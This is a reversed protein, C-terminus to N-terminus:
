SLESVYDTILGLGAELHEPLAGYGIRLYSSMLFHDGPVVLVSKEERLRTALEVSGIRLKFRVYAIAGADPDIMSFVGSSGDVWERLTLHNQKLITRTRTLLRARNEPRLAARALCDSLPSPSITIYDHYAWAQAAMEPTSVIWGIRLGPLGYAKSLGSTIILKDYKGWFTPTTEGVREAGRYVEDVLLWAGAKGAAEVIKDMEDASLVSGTPNNPNCVTILKTKPNVISYLRDLDPAWGEEERLHFPRIEAGFGRALGWIQMYIPLLMVVEDGPEILLWTATFNSEATGNTVMVNNETAGDYMSAIMRRLEPTGNSQNYHLHAGLLARAEEPDGVLEAVTVPHVGSESLNYRVFNEWTSQMREMEFPEVKM